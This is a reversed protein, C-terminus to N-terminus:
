HWLQEVDSRDQGYSDRLLGWVTNPDNMLKGARQLLNKFPILKVSYGERGAQYHAIHNETVYSSALRRRIMNLDGNLKFPLIPRPPNTQFFNDGLPDMIKAVNFNNESRLRRLYDQLKTKLSAAIATRLEGQRGGASIIETSSLNTNIETEVSQSFQDNQGPRIIPAWLTYPTDQASGRSSYFYPNFFEKAGANDVVTDVPINYRGLEFEDPLMAARLGRALDAMGFSSGQGSPSRLNAYFGALVGIDDYGKTGDENIPLWPINSPPLTQGSTNSVPKPVLPKYFQSAELKPGIRSGFPVAAAYATMELDQGPNNFPFPNFLLKVKAQLKIAYYVYANSDKYVGVIPKARFKEMQMLCGQAPNSGELFAVWTDIEPEIKKLKLMEDTPLLETMRVEDHSFTYRNLNGLATKLALATRELKAPDDRAILQNLQTDSLNRKPGENIYSQINQIRHFLLLEETVLGVDNNVLGALNTQSMLQTDVNTAYLWYSLIESNLASGQSCSATQITAITIASQRIATCSPDLPFCPPPQVVPVARVLQCVNSQTSLSLCVVPVGPFGTPSNVASRNEWQMPQSAGANLGRCDAHTTANGGSIGRPFCKQALNGLVYYRYLFKKYAQRMQYNLHSIQTMHRAQTAAGAYAALDAANQLQIKSHVLMGINIVFALLTIMPVISFIIM